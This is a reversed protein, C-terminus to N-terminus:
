NCNNDIETCVEDEEGHTFADNFACDEYEGIGEEFINEDCPGLIFADCDNISDLVMEGVGLCCSTECGQDQRTIGFIDLLNNWVSVYDVGSNASLCSLNNEVCITDYNEDLIVSTCRDDILGKRDLDKRIFFAYYFLYVLKNGADICVDAAKQNGKQLFSWSKKNLRDMESEIVNWGDIFVQEEENPNAAINYTHRLRKYM